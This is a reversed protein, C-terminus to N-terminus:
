ILNEQMFKYIRITKAIQYFGVNESFNISM